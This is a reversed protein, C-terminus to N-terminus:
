LICIELILIIIILVNWILIKHKILHHTGIPSVGININSGKSLLDINGDTTNLNIGATGATQLIGGNIHTAEIIIANSLNGLSTLKLEGNNVNVAINGNDSNLKINNTSNLTYTSNTRIDYSSSVCKYKTDSSFTLNGNNNEKINLSTGRISNM